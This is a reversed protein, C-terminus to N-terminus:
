EEKPKTPIKGELKAKAAEIGGRFGDEKTKKLLEKKLDDPMKKEEESLSLGGIMKGGGLSFLNENKFKGHTSYIFISGSM